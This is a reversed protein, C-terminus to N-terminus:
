KLETSHHLGRRITEMAGLEEGTALVTSNLTNRRGTTAPDDVATM